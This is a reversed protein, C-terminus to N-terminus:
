NLNSELNLFDPSREERSFSFLAIAKKAKAVKARLQALVDEAKLMEGQQSQERAQDIKKRTAEIWAAYNPSNDNDLAADDVLLVLAASIAEEPSSYQGNSVL